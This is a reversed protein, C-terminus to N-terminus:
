GVHLIRVVRHDKISRIRGPTLLNVSVIDIRCTCYLSGPWADIKDQTPNHYVAVIRFTEGAKVPYGVTSSYVDMPGDPQVKRVSKWVQENRSTNYLEISVGYPHIHTGLFHIRGRFPLAFTVQRQDRGPPVFFLHPVQVSRLSSHLPKIPKTRDKERIVTVVVRMQVRVSAAERNNFMPMWHLTEDPTIPIGFGDPLRVVPTFADSYIGSLDEEEHQAVRRDALFTHCLYNERPTKGNADLIETRYGIVWVREAFRLNKMAHPVHHALTGSELEVLGTSFEVESITGSDSRESSLRFANLVQPQPSATDVLFVTWMLWVFCRKLRM